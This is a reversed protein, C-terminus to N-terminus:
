FSILLVIPLHDSIGGSYSPGTFCRRPRYGGYARDETLLMSDEFIYESIDIDGFAFYGDIKEWRGNYKITGRSGRGPGEQKWLEDNFDGMSLIRKEGESLLSDAIHHMREMALMRSESKGGGVKSPHHNVMVALSDFQVLLIDRTALINGKNDFIHKPSSSRLRLSGQRYLLVCDMNRHDPSDYHVIGYNLKGLLTSSLLKHVVDATEIECLGVIDPIRGYQESIRFLTKSVADCKAYFRASTWVLPKSPSKRDYFNEMNWFVALLTDQQAQAKSCLVCALLIMLTLKM